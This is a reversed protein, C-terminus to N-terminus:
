EVRQLVDAMKRELLEQINKMEAPRGLLYGQAYDCGIMRLFELQEVTEVGEAVVSLNLHHALPIIDALLQKSDAEAAIDDVFTKDIKLTDIPLRKLYNLSSYGTGFDDLAMHIGLAKLEKLLKVTEEMSELLMSETIELELRCPDIQTEELIDRVSQIFDKDRIQVASINVSIFADLTYQECLERYMRCATLLVWKGIPLIIGTKEALPIFEMPSIIGKPSRWRILAEFGRISNGDMAFQPQFVLFFEKNAIADMLQKEQQIKQLIEEKMEKRFFQINNRGTDKAKFMATDACKMLEVEEEGDYPYVAVGFSASTRINPADPIHIESICERIQDIFRFASNEDMPQQILLAFEDGGLRGALDDPHMSQKLIKTVRRLLEDGARYGLTDNVHKFNDIDFFVIYIPKRNHNLHIFLQLRELIMKRNPLETLIDFHAIYNLKAEKELIEENYLKLQDNQSRLEEETAAIEEYLSLTEEKQRLAEELLRQTKRHRNQNVKMIMAAVIFLIFFLLFQVFYYADGMVFQMNRHFIWLHLGAIFSGISIYVLLTKNERTFAFMIQIFGMTLVAPGIYDYFDTIIYLFWTSILFSVFHTMRRANMPLRTILEFLVALVFFVISGRLTKSYPEHWLLNRVVINVVAGFILIPAGFMATLINEYLEIQQEDNSEDLAKLVTPVSRRVKLPKDM